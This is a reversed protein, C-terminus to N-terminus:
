TKYGYAHIAMGIPTYRGAVSSQRAVEARWAHMHGWQIVAIVIWGFVCINFLRLLMKEQRRPTWPWVLFLMPVLLAVGLPGYEALTEALKYNMDRDRRSSSSTELLSQSIFSLEM